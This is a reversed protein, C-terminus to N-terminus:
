FHLFYCLKVECCTKKHNMYTDPGGSLAPPNEVNRFKIRILFYPGIPVPGM